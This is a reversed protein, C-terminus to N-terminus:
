WCWEFASVHLTFLFSDDHEFRDAPIEFRGRLSGAALPTYIIEAHKSEGPGLTLTQRGIEQDDIFM